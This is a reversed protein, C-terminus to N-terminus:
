RRPEPGLRARLMTMGRHLNVRVSGETMGTHAAIEPGTMGEVLRMILTEAFADPLSRIADLIERAESTPPPAPGLNTPLEAHERRTRFFDITRTRAISALWAGFADPDHLGPLTRWAKLFIDQILDPAEEPPVRRLVIAHVMRGHLQHLRTFASTDGRRAALVLTRTADDHPRAPAPPDAVLPSAFPVASPM